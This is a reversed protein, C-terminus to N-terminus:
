PLARDHLPAPLFCLTIGFTALMAKKADKVTISRLM